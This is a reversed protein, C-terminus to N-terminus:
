KNRTSITQLHIAIAAKVKLFMDRAVLLTVSHEHVAISKIKYKQYQEM